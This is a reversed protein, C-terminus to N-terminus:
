DTVARESVIFRPMTWRQVSNPLLGGLRTILAFLFPFAIIPRNRELGRVILGAASEPPIAFSKRGSEQQMMPTMVYGPCIVSVGIGSKRLASRLALGYTLVASKSGCYSPADPLPVFAALSSVIGIQGRRRAMMRPLVPQISNLVGLVNTEMLAYSAPSSEIDADAPRGVMVGANNILVDIPDVTDFNELWQEMESRARIDLTATQVAAGFRRCQDAVEHLRASSRGLLGLVTGDRAYRLALAKGIGSSAGTIVVTRSIPTM